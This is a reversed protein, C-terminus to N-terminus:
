GLLVESYPYPALIEAGESTVLIEDGLEVWESLEV